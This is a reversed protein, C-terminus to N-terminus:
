QNTGEKGPSVTRTSPKAGGIRRHPAAARTHIAEPLVPACRCVPRVRFGHLLIEFHLHAGGDTVGSSGVLMMIQGRQVPQGAIVALRSGHAYATELGDHHRLRVYWGSAGKFGAEVVVGDAMASVPSFRPAAIDCGQHMRWEHLVPHWRLGHEDSIRTGNVIPVTSQPLKVFRQKADLYGSVECRPVVQGFANIQAILAIAAVAIVQM